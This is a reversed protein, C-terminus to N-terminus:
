TQSISQKKGKWLLALSLSHSLFQAAHHISQITPGVVSENHFLTNAAEWSSTVQQGASVAWCDVSLFTFTQFSFERPSFHLPPSLILCWWTLSENWKLFIDTAFSSKPDVRFCCHGVLLGYPEKLSKIFIKYQIKFKKWLSFSIKPM